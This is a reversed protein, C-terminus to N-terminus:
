DPRQCIDQDIDDSREAAIVRNKSNGICQHSNQGSQKKEFALLVGQQTDAQASSECLYEAGKNDVRQCENKIPNKGACIAQNLAKDVKIMSGM